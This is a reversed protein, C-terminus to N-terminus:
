GTAARESASFERDFSLVAMLLEGLAIRQKQGGSLQGGNEGVPTDYGEPFEMIFDHANAQRCAEEIDAQSANPAAYAINRSITGAFLTPEQGVYALQDRYWRVNLSKINKGMYEVTGEAPDYFREILGVTTSKGGGSEGVLAVTEGRNITLNFGSLVNINPRAPYAFTVNNFSLHAVDNAIEIGEEVMEVSRTRTRARVKVGTSSDRSQNSSLSSYSCKIDVEHKKVVQVSGDQEEVLKRYYSKPSMVLEAHTGQEVVSGAVIVNIKDVTRITSLRHAIIITTVKEKKLINDLADQVLRESEADLAIISNLVLTCYAPSIFILGHSRAMEFCGLL